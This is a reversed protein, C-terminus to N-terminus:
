TRRRLSIASSRGLSNLRRTRIESGEVGRRVVRSLKAGRV